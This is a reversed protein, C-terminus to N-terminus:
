KEVKNKIEEYIKESINKKYSRNLAKTKICKEMCETNKCIYAGRGANKKGEDLRINGDKDLSVRALESQPFKKRCAICTREPLKKESM